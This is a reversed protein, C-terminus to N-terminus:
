LSAAPPARLRTSSFALSAILPDISARPLLIFHTAIFKLFPNAPLAASPLVLKRPYDGFTHLSIVGARHTGESADAISIEGTRSVSRIIRNSIQAHLSTVRRSSTNAAFSLLLLLPVISLYLLECVRKSSLNTSL